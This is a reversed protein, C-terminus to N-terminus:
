TPAMSPWRARAPRAPSCARSTSCASAPCRGTARPCRSGAPQRRHARDGDAAPRRHRRGASAAGMRGAHAGHRRRGQRRHDGGRSRRRELQGGRAGGRRSGRGRRARRAGGRSPEPFQLASLELARRTTPYVGMIGNRAHRCIRRRGAEHLARQAAVGHGPASRGDRDPPARHAGGVSRRRRARDRRATAAGAVGIRFPTPLVPDTGGTFTVAARDDALPSQRSKCAEHPM